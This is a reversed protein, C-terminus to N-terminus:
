ELIKLVIGEKNKKGFKTIKVEVKNWEVAGNKKMWPIFIDWDNETIVFGFSNNDKFTWIVVGFESEFVKVVIAEKKWKFEVIQAKVKDWDCAKWRKEWYVFYWKEQWEVDIFGFNWDWSSYIWEIFEWKGKSTMSNIGEGIPLPNHHLNWFVRVIRVEPKKWTSKIEVGEVKDWDEAWWFYKKRVYFDWGYFDRDKPILFGFHEWSQFKWVITEM